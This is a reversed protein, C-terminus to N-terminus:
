LKKGKSKMNLNSFIVLNLFHEISSGYIQLIKTILLTSHFEWLHLVSGRHLFNLFFDFNKKGKSKM